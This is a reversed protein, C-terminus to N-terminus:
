ASKGRESGVQSRTFRRPLVGLDLTLIINLQLMEQTRTGIAQILDAVMLNIFYIEVSLHTPRATLVYIKTRGNDGCQVKLDKSREMIPNRYM